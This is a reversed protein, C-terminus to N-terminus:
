RELGFTVRASSAFCHITRAYQFSSHIAAASSFFLGDRAMAFYVRPASMIITALSGFVAVLVFASFIQAGLRGFLVEGIQAAFAQGNTVQEM